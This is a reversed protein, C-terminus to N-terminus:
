GYFRQKVSTKPKTEKAKAKIVNPAKEVQKEIDKADKKLSKYKSADLAMLMLEHSDLANVARESFGSEQIYSDMLAIDAEMTKSDQWSPLADMLKQKETATRENYEQEKLKELDKKAQESLKQKDALEEKVRLYESPDSERLYNLDEPNSDKQILEDLKSISDTLSEKVKDLELSKAENAKKIEANAQSKKTYDSQRLGNDKWEKVTSASVEEGDFDYYLESETESSETSEISSSEEGTATEAEISSTETTSSTDESVETQTSETQTTETANNAEM